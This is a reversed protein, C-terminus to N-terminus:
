ASVSKSTVLRMVQSWSLGTLLRIYAGSPVNPNTRSWIDYGSFTPRKDSDKLGSVYESVASIADERTWRRKYSRRPPQGVLGASALANRWTGFRWAIVSHTPPKRGGVLADNRWKQYSPITVTGTGRSAERLVELIAENTWLQPVHHTRLSEKKRPALHQEIWRVPIGSDKLESAVRSVSRLEDFLADIRAAHQEMVRERVSSSHEAATRRRVGKASLIQRVRERTLGFYDGIATLTSGSEYMQIMREDRDAAIESRPQVRPQRTVLGETRANRIITLVTQDSVGHRKSIDSVKENANYADIIQSNRETNM